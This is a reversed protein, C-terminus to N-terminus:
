STRPTIANANSKANAAGALGPADGKGGDGRGGIGTVVGDAEGVGLGPGGNPLM